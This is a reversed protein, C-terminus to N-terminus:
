AVKLWAEVQDAGYVKILLNIPSNTAGMFMHLQAPPFVDLVPTADPANILPNNIANAHKSANKKDGM